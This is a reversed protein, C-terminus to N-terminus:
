GGPAGEAPKTWSRRTPPRRAVEIPRQELEELRRALEAAQGGGGGPGAPVGRGGARAAAM